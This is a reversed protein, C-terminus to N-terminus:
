RDEEWRCQVDVFDHCSYASCAGTPNHHVHHGCVTHLTKFKHDPCKLHFPCIFRHRKNKIPKM